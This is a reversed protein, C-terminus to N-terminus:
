FLIYAQLACFDDRLELLKLIGGGGEMTTGSTVSDITGGEEIARERTLGRSDQFGARVMKRGMAALAM